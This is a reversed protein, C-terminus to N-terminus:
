RSNGSYIVLQNLGSAQAKVERSGAVLTGRENEKVAPWLM